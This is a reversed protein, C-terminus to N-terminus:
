RLAVRLPKSYPHEFGLLDVRAYRLWYFGPEIKARRLDAAVDIDAMFPYDKDFFVAGFASNSSLQIHYSGIETPDAVGSDPVEDGFLAMSQHKFGAVAASVEIPAEEAAPAVEAMAQEDLKQTKLLRKLPAPSKYRGLREAPVPTLEDPRRAEPEGQVQAEDPPPGASGPSAMTSSEQSLFESKVRASGPEREEKRGQSLREAPKSRTWVSNPAAVATTAEPPKEGHPPPLHTARPPRVLFPETGAGIERFVVRKKERACGALLLAVILLAGAEGARKVGITYGGKAVRALAWGEGRLRPVYWAPQKRPIITIM